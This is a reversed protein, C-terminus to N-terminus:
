ASEPRNLNIFLKLQRAYEALGAGPHWGDLRWVRSLHDEVIPAQPLRALELEVPDLACQMFGNDRLGRRQIEFVVGRLPCGPITGRLIVEVAHQTLRCLIHKRDRARVGSVFGERRKPFGNVCAGCDDGICPLTRPPIWHTLPTYIADCTICIRWAVKAPLTELPLYPVEPEDANFSWTAVSNM